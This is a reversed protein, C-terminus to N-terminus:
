IRTFIKKYAVNVITVSVSVPLWFLWTEDNPLSVAVPWANFDGLGIVCRPQNWSNTTPSWRIAFIQASVVGPQYLLWVAGAGDEFAWPQSATAPVNPVSTVTWTSTAPVWVARRLGTSPTAAGDHFFAQVEGSARQLLVPVDGAGLQQTSIAPPSVAPDFHSVAATSTGPTELTYACWVQGSADSIAHGLGTTIPAGSVDFPTTDLWASDTHRLRRGFLRSSAQDQWFFTLVKDSRVVLPWSGDDNVGTAIQQVPAAALAAPLGRKYSLTGSGGSTSALYAVVSEGGPLVVGDPFSSNTAGVTVVNQTVAGSAIDVRNAYVDQSGSNTILSYVMIGGLGDPKIARRSLDRVAPPMVTHESSMPIDGAIGANIADRLSIKPRGQGRRYAFPATGLVDEILSAPLSLVRTDRRDAVEGAPIIGTGGAHRTVAALPAYGHGPLWDPDGRRPVEATTTQERWRVVWERKFRACSETGLGPLVLSPDESHTVLREWVDLYVVYTKDLRPLEPVTPVSWAAALTAAGPQSVHLPQARFALDAAIAAELGEVLMRGTFGLAVEQSTAGAPAAPTGRAIVLDDAVGATTIHFGDNGEPVGSGAFWRLFSRLEFKRADEGENWDADVLPVGQQLRVAVYRRLPDFTNPSMIAM